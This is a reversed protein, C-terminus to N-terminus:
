KNNILDRLELQIRSFKEIDCAPNGLVTKNEKVNKLLVSGINIHSEKGIRIGNIITVGVGIWCNDEIITRGSISSNAAILVNNGLRVAHAIQVLNDIKCYDGIVTDSWPYIAKDVCSNYQIEVNEGIIVGGIHKVSLVVNSVRKFEFGTGGIISGAGIITNDGIITNEKIISFDEVTVNNGITVNKPAIVARESIVCNNGIISDYRHRCYNPDNCLFNHITFFLVRPNDVICIGYSSTNQLSDAVESTTIVMSVYETINSIYRKNDIFVCCPENVISASLALNKFPKENKIIFKGEYNIKLLIESIKFM